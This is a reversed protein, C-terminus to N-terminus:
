RSLEELARRTSLCGGPRAALRAGLARLDAAVDVDAIVPLLAVRCGAAEAAARTDDLAHATSWRSGGFIAPAPAGSRLGVLSFGGDPAPAFVVDAEDLARLAARVDDARLEPADSGVIVVPGGSGGALRAMRSGLDGEGQSAFTWGAFTESLIPGPAAGLHALVCEWEGPSPLSGALDALFAAYLAVAGAEGVERALRTKVTGGVPERAFLALRPLM